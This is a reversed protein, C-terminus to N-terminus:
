KVLVKKGEKIYLGKPLKHNPLRSDVIKRGSLDYTENDMTGQEKGISLIGDTDEVVRLIGDSALQSYDWKYGPAPIAPEFAPTGTLTISGSGTFIRYDVNPQWEGSIRQMLFVPSALTIKGSINFQDVSATTSRGRVLLQGGAKVQLTGTVTATGM